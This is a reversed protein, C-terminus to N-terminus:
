EWECTRVQIFGKEVREEPRRVDVVLYKEESGELKSRLDGGAITKAETAQM